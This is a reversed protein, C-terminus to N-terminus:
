RELQAFVELELQSVVRSLRGGLDEVREQLFDVTDAEDSYYFKELFVPRDLDSLLDLISNLLHQQYIKALMEHLREKEQQALGLESLKREINERNAFREYLVIM